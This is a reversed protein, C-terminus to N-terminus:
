GAFWDMVLQSTLLRIAHKPRGHCQGLWARQRCRRRRCMAAAAPVAATSGRVKHEATGPEAYGQLIVPATNRDSYEM